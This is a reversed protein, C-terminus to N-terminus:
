ICSFSGSRRRASNIWRDTSTDVSGSSTTRTSDITRQALNRVLMDEAMRQGIPSLTRKQHSTPMGLDGRFLPLFNSVCRVDGRETGLMSARDRALLAKYDSHDNCVSWGGPQGWRSEEEAM